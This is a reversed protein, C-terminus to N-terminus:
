GGGGDPIGADMVPNPSGVEQFRLIPAVGAFGISLCDYAHWDGAIRVCFKDSSVAGSPNRQRGVEQFGALYLHWLIRLLFEDAAQLAAADTKFVQLLSPFEAATASVVRRALDVSPPGPPVHFPSETPLGLGLAGRLEELHKARSATWGMGACTDYVMRGLWILAKPDPARGAQRYLAVCDDIYDSVEQENYPVM